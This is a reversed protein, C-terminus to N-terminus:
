HMVNDFNLLRRPSGSYKCTIQTSADSGQLSLLTQCHFAIQFEVVTPYEFRSGRQRKRLQLNPFYSVQIIHLQVM